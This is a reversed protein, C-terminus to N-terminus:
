LAESMDEEQHNLNARHSPKFAKVKRIAVDFTQNIAAYLDANQKKVVIDNQKAHYILHVEFATGEQRFNLTASTGSSINHLKEFKQNVAKQISETVEIQHGQIIINCM